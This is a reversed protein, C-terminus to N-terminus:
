FLPVIGSGLANKPFTTILVLLVTDLGFPNTSNEFSLAEGPKPFPDNYALFISLKSKDPRENSSLSPFDVLGDKLKIVSEADESEDLLVELPFPDLKSPFVFVTLSITCLVPNLSVVVFEASV